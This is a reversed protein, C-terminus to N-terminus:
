QGQYDSKIKGCNKCKYIVVFPVDSKFWKWKHFGLYDCIIRKYINM